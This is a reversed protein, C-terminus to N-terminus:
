SYSTQQPNNAGQRAETLFCTELSYFLLLAPVWMRESRCVCLCVCVYVCLGCGRQGICVCMCGGVCVYLVCMCVYGM